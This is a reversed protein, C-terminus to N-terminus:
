VVSGSLKTSANCRENPKRIVISPLLMRSDRSRYLERAAQYRNSRERAARFLYRGRGGPLSLTAHSAQCLLTMGRGAACRAVPCAVGGCL